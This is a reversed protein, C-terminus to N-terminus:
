CGARPSCNASDHEYVLSLSLSLSLCVYGETYRELHDDDDDVFLWVDLVHQVAYVNEFEAVAAGVSLKVHTDEARGSTMRVFACCACGDSRCCGRTGGGAGKRSGGCRRGGGTMGTVSASTAMVSRRLECVGKRATRLCDTSSKMTLSIAESLVVTM